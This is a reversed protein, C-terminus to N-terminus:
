MPLRQFLKAEARYVIRKIHRASYGHKEALAEFTYGDCLRDKLIERVSADRIFDDIFKRLETNTLAGDYGHKM